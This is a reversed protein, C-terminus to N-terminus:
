QRTSLGGRSILVKDISTFIEQFVSIPSKSCHAIECSFHLEDWNKQWHNYSQMNRINPDQTFNAWNSYFVLRGALPVESIPNAPFLTRVIPHVRSVNFCHPCSLSINKTTSSKFWLNKGQYGQSKPWYKNQHQEQCPKLRKIPQHGLLSGRRFCKQKSTM